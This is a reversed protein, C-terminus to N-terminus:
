YSSSGLLGNLFSIWHCMFWLILIGLYSIMQCWIAHFQDHSQEVQFYSLGAIENHKPTFLLSMCSLKTRVLYIYIKISKERLPFMELFFQITPDSFFFLSQSKLSSMQLELPFVACIYLLNNVTIIEQSHPYFSVEMKKYM